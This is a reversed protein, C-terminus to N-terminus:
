RLVTYTIIESEMRATFVNINCQGDSVLEIADLHASKRKVVNLIKMFEQAKSNLISQNLAQIKFHGPEGGYDFWDVIKSEGFYATIVRLAAWNTGLKAHVIDSEKIITRKVDIAANKDYWSIHLEEALMDLEAASMNDIKDWTSLLTVRSALEETVTDTGKALGIVAGDGRMFAPLMELFNMDDLRM